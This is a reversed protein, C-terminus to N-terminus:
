KMLNDLKGSLKLLNLAAVRYNYHATVYNNQAASINMEDQLVSTMGSLGEKYQDATVTYVGEALKVNELQERYTRRNNTLDNISNLYEKQLNKRNNDLAIQTNEIDIKAKNRKHRKSFGDFIPIKVQLGIGYTNYWRKYAGSGTLWGNFENSFTLWSYGGTLSVTPLYNQKIM